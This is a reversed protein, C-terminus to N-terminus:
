HNCPKNTFEGAVTEEAANVGVQGSLFLQRTGTTEVAQSFGYQLSNFVSTPNILKKTM